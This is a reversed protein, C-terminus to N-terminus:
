EGVRRGTTAKRRLIDKEWQIKASVSTKICGCSDKRRERKKQRIRTNTNHRKGEGADKEKRHSV